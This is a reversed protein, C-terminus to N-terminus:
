HLLESCGVRRLYLLHALLASVPVPRGEDGAEDDFRGMLQAMISMVEHAHTGVLPGASCVLEESCGRCLRLGDSASAKAGGPFGEPLGTTVCPTLTQTLTM